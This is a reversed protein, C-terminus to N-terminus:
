FAWPVRGSRHVVLQVSGDEPRGQLASAHDGAFRRALTHHWHALSGAPAGHDQLTCHIVLQGDGHCLFEVARTQSPWDIVSGTSIEWFGGEPGAHPRVEHLHRHGALWAVLSPHRHLLAVLAGAQQRQPDAGRRNTLSVSGHHSVLLAIRGPQHDVETLQQDLWQLQANGVSGQYDGQPHNTDLLIIRAHETDIVADTEGRAVHGANYGAAGGAVLAAIWRKKDLAQRGAVATVQRAGGSGRSFAAPADVFLALPDVPDFGDPRLLLKRTGLAIGEIAPEPLATGQRMLDHNGPVSAWAFGLGQSVQAASARAVLDPVDPYGQRKWPDDVAADPSWYPWPARADHGSADQVCGWAPLQARGGSLIAVFAEMENHQANDINDGLSLGLDYPRRSCPALPDRRAKDVHAALAWHTLAEYPRHMHLLPQWKPEHGLLEVWEARAPSAADLVQVDSAVWLALLCRSRAASAGPAVGGLDTRVLSKM